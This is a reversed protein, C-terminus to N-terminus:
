GGAAAEGALGRQTLADQTLDVSTDFTYAGPVSGDQSINSMWPNAWGQVEELRTLWTSLSEFHLTSGSFAMTGVFTTESTSTPAPAATTNVASSFSSLYSDSPIVKSVDVLVGSYAIEDAYAADLLQQQQQAEAQIDAYKQLGSIEAQLSQNTQTQAEIDSNVQSLRMGQIVWLLVILGIVAAGIIAVLLTRRRVQQTRKIESPLLNVRSM